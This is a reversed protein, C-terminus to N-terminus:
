PFEGAGRPPKAGARAVLEELLAIVRDLQEGRRQLERLIHGLLELRAVDAAERNQAMGLVAGLLPNPSPREM